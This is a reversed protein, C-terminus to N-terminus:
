GKKDGCGCADIYGQLQQVTVRLGNLFGGLDDPSIKDVIKKFFDKYCAELQQAVQQGNETLACLVIRRDNKYEKRCILGGEVLKDVVRSMTSVALQMRKALQQMNLPQKQAVELVVIGQLPTVGYCACTDRDSSELSRLLQYILSHIEQAPSIM